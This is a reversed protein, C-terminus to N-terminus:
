KLNENVFDWDVLHFFNELYKARDNRTDIYYSHEWMDIAILVQKDVLLTEADDTNIIELKWEDNKILWTWGSAFNWIANASFEKKFNEFSWFDREILEAIDGNPKWWANPALLEWFFTHNLTQAANNYLGWDAVKIIDELSKNELETGSILNNLNTIYAQHHKGYHYELTEKSMYPELADLTYNLKPLEFMNKWNKLLYVIYIITM